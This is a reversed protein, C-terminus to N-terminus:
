PFRCSLEFGVTITATGHPLRLFAFSILQRTTTKHVRAHRGGLASRLRQRSEQHIAPPSSGLCALQRHDPDEKCQTDGGARARKFSTGRVARRVTTIDPGTEGRRKSKRRRAKLLRDHIVRTAVGAAKWKQINDLEDASLHKGMKPTSRSAQQCVRLCYSSGIDSSVAHAPSPPHVYMHM